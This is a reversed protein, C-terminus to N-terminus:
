TVGLDSAMAYPHIPGHETTLEVYIERVAAMTDDDIVPSASAGFNERVQAVSKCRPIVVSVGPTQLVFRILGQVLSRGECPLLGRLREAFVGRIMAQHPDRMDRALRGGAGTSGRKGALMGNALPERAIIGIDASSAMALAEAFRPVTTVNVSEQLTAFLAGFEGRAVQCITTPGYVSIGCHRIKGEDVLKQMTGALDHLRAQACDASHWQYLDIYDTQLRRLSAELYRRVHEESPPCHVPAGDPGTEPWHGFKTALIVRDRRGAMFTGLLEESHGVGYADATDVFNCGLAWAEELASLAEGDDMPGYGTGTRESYGGIGWAGFGVESVKLGTKGLTRYEM